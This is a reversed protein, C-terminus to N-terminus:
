DYLTKLFVKALGVEPHGAHRPGQEQHDDQGNEPSHENGCGGWHDHWPGPM